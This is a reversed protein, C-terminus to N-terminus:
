FGPNGDLAANWLACGEDIKMDMGYVDCGTIGDMYIAFDGVSATNPYDDRDKVRDHIDFLAQISM